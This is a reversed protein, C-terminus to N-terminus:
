KPPLPTSTTTATRTIKSPVAKRYSTSKTALTSPHHKRQCNFCARALWASKNQITHNRLDFSVTIGVARYPDVAALEQFKQRAKDDFRHGQAHMRSIWTTMAAVVDETTALPEKNISKTTTARPNTTTATTRPPPKSAADNHNNSTTHMHIQVSQNQIELATPADYLYRRKTQVVHVEADGKTSLKTASAAEVDDLSASSSSTVSEGDALLSASMSPVAEAEDSCPHLQAHPPQMRDDEHTPGAPEDDDNLHPEHDQGDFQSQQPQVQNLSVRTAVHDNDDDDDHTLSDLFPQFRLELAADYLDDERSTSPSSTTTSLYQDVEHASPIPLTKRPLSSLSAPHIHTSPSAKPAGDDHRDYCSEHHQHSFAFLPRQPQGGHHPPGDDVDDLQKHHQLDVSFIDKSFTYNTEPRHSRNYTPSASPEGGSLLDFPLLTSTAFHRCLFSTDLLTEDHAIGFDGVDPPSAFLLPSPASSRRADAPTSQPPFSDSALDEDDYYYCDDPHMIHDHQYLHQPPSAYGRSSTPSVPCEMQNMSPPLGVHQPTAPVHRHSSTAAYPPQLPTFSNGYYHQLPPMYMPTAPHRVASVYPPAHPHEHHPHHSHYQMPYSAAPQVFANLPPMQLLYLVSQLVNSEVYQAQTLQQYVDAVFTLASLLDVPLAQAHALSHVVHPLYADDYMHPHQKTPFALQLSQALHMCQLLVDDRELTAQNM